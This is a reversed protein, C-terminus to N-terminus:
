TSLTVPSYMTHGSGYNYFVVHAEKLGTVAQQVQIDYLLCVLRVAVDSSDASVFVLLHDGVEMIYTTTPFSSLISKVSPEYVSSFLYCQHEYVSYGGPYFGTHVTCYEQITNIWESFSEYRVHIDRLTSTVPKRMNDRFASYLAWQDKGWPLEPALVRTKYEPTRVQGLVEYARDFSKEWTTLVPRPTYSCYKIGSYVINCFGKLQSFDMRNNTIVMTNWDGFTMANYVVHPFWKFGKFAAWPDSFNMLYLYEKYTETSKMRVQPGMITHTTYMDQLYKTVTSRALTIKQSINYVTTTPYQYVQEFIKYYDKIKKPQSVRSM